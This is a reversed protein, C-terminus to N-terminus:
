SLRKTYEEERLRRMTTTGGGARIVDKYYSVPETDFQVLGCHLCQCLPLDVPKERELDEKRPFDQASAPMNHFVALKSLKEGCVICNAM